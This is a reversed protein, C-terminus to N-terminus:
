SARSSGRKPKLPGDRSLKANMLQYHGSLHPTEVWNKELGPPRLAPELGFIKNTGAPVYGNCERPFPVVKGTIRVSVPFLAAIHLAKRNPLQSWPGM